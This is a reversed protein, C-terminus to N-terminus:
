AGTSSSKPMPGYSDNRDPLGTIVAVSAPPGSSTTCSPEVPPDHRGLRRLDGGGGHPEPLMRVLSGCEASRAM